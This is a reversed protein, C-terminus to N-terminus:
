DKVARAWLLEYTVPITGNVRYATEYCSIIRNLLRRSLPAPRPSTAGMGQIAKLFEMVGPFSVVLRQRHVAVQEFGAQLLFQQWEDKDVFGSAPISRPSPAEGEGSSLQQAAQDLSIALEQFTEPGLSSFMLWGGPNLHEQYSRCSQAPQNYWQFVSNSTILDFRGRFPQEGDGVLWDIRPDDGLHRRCAQVAAASLDVATLHAEPFARRLLHTLYGTGCGIELIRYRPRQMVQLYEVLQEAMYRQVQAYQDYRSAQRGFNRGLRRKDVTM